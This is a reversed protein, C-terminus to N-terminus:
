LRSRSWIATYQAGRDADCFQWFFGIFRMRTATFRTTSKLMRMRVLGSLVPTMVSPSLCLRFGKSSIARSSARRRRSFPRASSTTTADIPGGSTCLWSRVASAMPAAGLLQRMADVETGLDVHALLV